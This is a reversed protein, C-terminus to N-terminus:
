PSSGKTIAVVALQGFFGAQTLKRSTRAMARFRRDEDEEARGVAKGRFEHLGAAGHEAGDAEHVIVM